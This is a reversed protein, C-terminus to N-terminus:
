TSSDGKPPDHQTEVVTPVSLPSPAQRAVTAAGEMWMEVGVEVGVLVGRIFVGVEVLRGGVAVLVGRGVAVLVGRGVGVLVGRGVSVKVRGGGGSVLGGGGGM